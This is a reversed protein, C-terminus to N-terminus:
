FGGPAGRLDILALLMMGLGPGTNVITVWTPQIDFYLEGVDATPRMMLATIPFYDKHGINHQVRVGGSGGLHVVGWKLIHGEGYNRVVEPQRWGIPVDTEQTM